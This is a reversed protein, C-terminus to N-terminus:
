VKDLRNLGSLVDEQQQVLQCGALRQEEFRVEHYSVGEERQPTVLLEYQDQWQLEEKDLSRRLLYQRRDKLLHM